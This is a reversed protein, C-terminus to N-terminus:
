KGLNLFHLESLFERGDSGGFLFLWSGVCNATHAFRCKASPLKKKTWTAAAIYLFLFIFSSNFLFFLVQTLFSCIVSVVKLM